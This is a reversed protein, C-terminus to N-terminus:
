DRDASEVHEREQTHSGPTYPNAWQTPFAIWFGLVAAVLVAGLLRHNHQIAQSPYGRKKGTLMAKALNERHLLSSIIVGAIHIAVIALMAGAAGEHLEEFWEGLDQYTAYGSIAIATGLALMAFIVMAGAPNHGTHHEIDPTILSSLYKVVRQPTFLFAKFRAYRTGILGWIVRFVILGAFSYGLM